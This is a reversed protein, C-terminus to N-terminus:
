RNRKYVLHLGHLTLDPQFHDACTLYPRLLNAVGGTAIVPAPPGPLAAQIRALMGEMLSLYGLVIGSQMATTTDDGIPSPPPTYDIRPLLAAGRILADAATLFGPAIAGGIFAGEADVVDFKTATGLDLTICPAGYMERAAIANLLRDIGVRKPELVRVPLGLDLGVHVLLPDLGLWERCMRTLIGTVPPAVSGIAVAETRQLDVGAALALVLLQARYDDASRRPDAGFRWVHRLADDVFLGISIDTNGIDIALLMPCDMRLLSLLIKAPRLNCTAPRLNCTAPQLHMFLVQWKGGQWKVKQNLRHKAPCNGGTKDM